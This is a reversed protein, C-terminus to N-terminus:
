KFVRVWSFVWEGKTTGDNARARITAVTPLEDFAKRESKPAKQAAMVITNPSNYHAAGIEPHYAYLLKKGKPIRTTIKLIGSLGFTASNAIYNISNESTFWYMTVNDIIRVKHNEFTVLITKQTNNGHAKKM